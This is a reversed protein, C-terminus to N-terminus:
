KYDTVKYFQSEKHLERHLVANGEGMAEQFRENIENLEQHDISKWSELDEWYVVTMVEGANTDSVWVEKSVFGPYRALAKTWIEHDLKIFKDVLDPKVKFLLQEVAMPKEYKRYEM